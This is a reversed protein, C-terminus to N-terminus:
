SEEASNEKNDDEDKTEAKQPKAFIFVNVGVFGIIMGVIQLLNPWKGSVIGTIIM